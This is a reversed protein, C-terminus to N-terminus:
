MLCKSALLLAAQVRPLLDCQKPSGLLILGAKGADVLLRDEGCLGDNSPTESCSTLAKVLTGSMMDKLRGFFRVEIKAGMGRPLVHNCKIQGKTQYAYDFAPPLEYCFADRGALEGYEFPLTFIKPDNSNGSLGSNNALAQLPSFRKGSRHSTSTSTVNKRPQQM